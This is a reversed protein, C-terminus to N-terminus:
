KKKKSQKLYEKWEAEKNGKFKLTLLNGWFISKDTKNNKLSGLQLSYSRTGQTVKYM